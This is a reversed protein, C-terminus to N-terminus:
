NNSEIKKWLVMELAIVVHVFNQWQKFGGEGKHPCNKYYIPTDFRCALVGAKRLAEDKKFNSM